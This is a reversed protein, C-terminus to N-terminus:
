IEMTKSIHLCGVSDIRKGSEGLFGAEIDKPKENPMSRFPKGCSLDGAAKMERVGRKGEVQVHQGRRLEHPGM